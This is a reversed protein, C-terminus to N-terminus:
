LMNVARAALLAIILLSLLSQLMMLVKAWRALVPADTPSFATSTNFALFLYDVFNPSWDEQGAERLAQETMTMQPFLFDGDCHGARADRQNPGGADLRWYWLAFVLINTIWLAAASRLLQQSHQSDKMTPLARVLLIVSIILGATLVVDVTFGFITNLRHRGTHHSVISPILLALVVSPFLWRPGAILENPLAMYLGGVALVAIIAPWRPEPDYDEVDEVRGLTDMSNKVM